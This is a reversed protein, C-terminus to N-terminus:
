FRNEGRPALYLRPDSPFNPCSSIKIVFLCFLGPGTYSSISFQTVPDFRYLDGGEGGPEKQIRGGDWPSPSRLRFTPGPM